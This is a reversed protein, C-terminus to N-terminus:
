VHHCSDSPCVWVVGMERERRICYRHLEECNGEGEDDDEATFCCDPHDMGITDVVPLVICVYVQGM